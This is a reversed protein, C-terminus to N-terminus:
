SVSVCLHGSIMITKILDIKDPPLHSLKIPTPKHSSLSSNSLDIYVIQPIKNHLDVCIHPLLQHACTSFPTLLYNM